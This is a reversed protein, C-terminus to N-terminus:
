PTGAEKKRLGAVLDVPPWALGSEDLRAKFNPTVELDFPVGCQCLSLLVALKLPGGPVADIEAARRNSAVRDDLLSEALVDAVEWYGPNWGQHRADRSGASLGAIDGGTKAAVLLEGIVREASGASLSPLEARAEDLRGLTVLARVKQMSTSDSGGMTAEGQAILALATEPQGAWNAAAASQQVALGSLPDCAMFNRMSALREAAIGFANGILLWSAQRCGQTITAAKLRVALGRWDESLLQRDVEILARTPM